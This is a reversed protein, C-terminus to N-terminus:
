EDNENEAPSVWGLFADGKETFTLNYKEMLWELETRFMYMREKVTYKTYDV